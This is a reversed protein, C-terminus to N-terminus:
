YFATSGLIDDGDDRVFKGMHHLAM